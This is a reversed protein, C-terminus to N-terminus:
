LYVRRYAQSAIRMGTRWLPSQLPAPQVAVSQPHLDQFGRVKFHSRNKDLFACLRRFRDVVIEDARDKRKNLLEFSHSLIVFSTRGAAEAQWLLHEMEQFSIATLQAHRLSGTGDAFVTMPYEHVGRCVVPEVVTIGPLVGSDPGFQSSNYSSDLYIHNAALADLTDTNFAFSGARFTNVPKGGATRLLDIGAAILTTQEDKTFMRLHQRKTQVDDLLPVISEDVWETHLHLQLEQGADEILGIIDALPQRGFRTSFLPEVFFAGTLGHDNLIELQCPLGFDGKATSGHIYKRFTDPFKRDIDSWGDCWIEVDVTYFVDLM